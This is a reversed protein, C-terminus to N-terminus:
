ERHFTLTFSRSPYSTLCTTPLAMMLVKVGPLSSHRAFPERRSLTPLMSMRPSRHANVRQLLSERGFLHRTKQAMVEAALRVIGGQCFRGSEDMKLLMAITKPAEDPDCEKDNAAVLMDEDANIV